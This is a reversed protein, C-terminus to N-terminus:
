ERFNQLSQYFVIANIEWINCLNFLVGLVGLGIDIIMLYIKMNLFQFLILTTSYNVFRM